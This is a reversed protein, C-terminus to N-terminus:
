AATVPNTARQRKRQEELEQPSVQPPPPPTASAVEALVLPRSTVGATFSAYYNDSPKKPREASNQQEDYDRLIKTEEKQYRGVVAMFTPENQQDQGKTRAYAQQELALEALTKKKEEEQTLKDVKTLTNPSQATEINRPAPVIWDVPADFTAKQQELTGLLRVPGSQGAVYREDYQVMVTMLNKEFVDKRVYVVGNEGTKWWIKSKEGLETGPPYFREASGSSTKGQVYDGIPNELRYWQEGGADQVVGTALLFHRGHRRTGGPEANVDTWKLDVLVGRSHGTDSGQTLSSHAAADNRVRDLTRNLYELQSVERVGAGNTTVARGDRDVLIKANSGACATELGSISRCMQTYDRCYQGNESTVDGGQMEMLGAYVLAMGFSPLRSTVSDVSRTFGGDGKLSTGSVREAYPVLRSQFDSASTGLSVQDGGVTTARGNIAIGCSLELINTASSASLAKCATCTSTEGQALLQPNAAGRLVEVLFERRMAEFSAASVSGKRIGFLNDSTAVVHLHELIDPRQELLPALVKLDQGIDRGNVRAQAWVEQLKEQQSTTLNSGRVVESFSGVSRSPDELGRVSHIIRGEHAAQLPVKTSLLDLGYDPRAKLGTQLESATAVKVNESPDDGSFIPM